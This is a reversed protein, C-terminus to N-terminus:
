CIPPLCGVDGPLDPGVPGSWQWGPIELNSRVHEGATNRMRGAAAWNAHRGPRVKLEDGDATALWHAFAAHQQPVIMSSIRHPGASSGFDSFLVQGLACFALPM